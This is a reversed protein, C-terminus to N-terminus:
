PIQAHVADIVAQNIRVDSGRIVSQTFAQILSTQMERATEVGFRALVSAAEPADPDPQNIADLRIIWADGDASLTALDDPEMGFVTENFDPPTGPVFGQREVGRDTGLNLGLGAMEAGNELAAVLEAARATLAKETEVMEWAAIVEDRVVAFPRLEPELVEAVSIVAIGGEDLEVLEAFDGPQAAEAAERFATYAAVGEFVEDNFDIRGAEMDTREVLAPIDAGGALLDEVSAVSELIIRRARDSAAERSLEEEAEEFSTEQASLIANMRYLAPGLSSPLPGFVGPEETGFLVEAAETPLDERALDGLDADDLSLGREEILDDFSASGGDIRALAEAAADDTQFVLREILRREPQVFEEIRADYLARVESEDVEIEDAIMDPTLLAYDIVKTEPRTFREAYEEHFARLVDESPEPLPEALDNATLRAWTVDRTERAYTFLTDVFIDPAIVGGGVSAQLLGSALTSRVEAEYDRASSGIERLAFEYTERNFNGTGDQFRRTQAIEQAVTEDGLSVGLARAENELAARSVLTGLAASDLGIMRAQSFSLPQGTAQSFARLQNDVARVYDNADIEVDGVTAVTQQSGSFSTAGFGALGLILLILIVWVGASAGKKKAM